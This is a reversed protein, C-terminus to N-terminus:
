VEIRIIKRIWLIGMMMGVMSGYILKMGMEHELLRPIYDPSIVSLVIIMLFPVMCLIWGSLRGEASMTKVKRAFKFRARIVQSLKELVETLNGGTERQVLVSTVMAMVNVSPIRDLLGLLALKADNGYNLDAFTEGFEGAIPDELELAVLNLSENFPHGAQLARRMVDIADPLQEEFKALRKGRDMAIKALPLTSLAAAAVLAAVWLHTMNFAVFGGVVALLLSVLVVQYARFNNGSQAIYARLRSLCEMSEVQKALPSLGQYEDKRLQIALV